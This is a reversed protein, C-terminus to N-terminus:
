GDNNFLYDPRSSPQDLRVDSEVGALLDMVFDCGILDTWSEDALLSM